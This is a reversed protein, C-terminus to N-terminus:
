VYIMVIEESTSQDTYNLSHYHVDRRSSAFDKKALTSVVNHVHKMVINYWIKMKSALFNTVVHKYKQVATQFHTNNNLILEGDDKKDGDICSVYQCLLIRLWSDYYEAISGTHFITPHMKSICSHFFLTSKFEDKKSVWYPNTGPVNSVFTFIKRQLKKRDEDNSWLEKM